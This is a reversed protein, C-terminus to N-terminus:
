HRSYLDLEAPWAALGKSPGENQFLPSLALAAGREVIDQGRQLPGYRM